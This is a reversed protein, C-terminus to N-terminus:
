EENEEEGVDRMKRKSKGRERRMKEEVERIKEEKKM